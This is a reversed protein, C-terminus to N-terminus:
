KPRRLVANVEQCPCNALVMHTALAGEDVVQFSTTVLDNLVILLELFEQRELIYNGMVEAAVKKDL